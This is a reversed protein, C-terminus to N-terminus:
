VRLAALVRRLEETDVGVCIRLREGNALVLELVPETTAPQQLSSTEVLAFRVPEPKGMRKRWGYFSQETLGQEKCFQVITKGSRKQEAIRKRWEESKGSRNRTTPTTM